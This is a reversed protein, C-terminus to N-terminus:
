RQVTDDIRRNDEEEDGSGLRGQWARRLQFGGVDQGNQQMNVGVEYWSRTDYLIGALYGFGYLFDDNRSAIPYTDRGGVVILEVLNRPDRIRYSDVLSGPYLFAHRAFAEIILWLSAKIDIHTRPPIFTYSLSLSHVPNTTDLHFLSTGLFTHLDSANVSGNSGDLAATQASQLLIPMAPNTSNTGTIGPNLIRGVGYVEELVRVQFYCEWYDDNGYMSRTVEQLSWVLDRYRTRGQFNQYQVEATQRRPDRWRSRDVVYDM